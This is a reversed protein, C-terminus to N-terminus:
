EPARVAAVSAKWTPLDTLWPFEKRLASVDVDYGTTEFWREMATIEPGAEKEFADWPFPELRVGLVAAVEEMTRADGAVDLTRGIWRDPHDFAEAAFRGIDAVAIHEVRTGPSLPTRLVHRDLLDRDGLFNEMFSVPRLITCPLGIEKLHQEIRWKTEFHPIGTHRDASGVSTYVFHRVGAAKARDALTTGQRVEGEAGAEWFNQVAFVGHVGQLAADLSAPDDFNGKVIEAGEAALKKAAEGHPHRTLAHVHWGRRLLERAVAGGQRGTAGTVLVTKQAEPPPGSAPGCGLTSLALVLIGVAVNRM